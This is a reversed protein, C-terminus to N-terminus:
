REQTTALHDLLVVRASEIHARMVREAEAANRSLLAEYVQRHGEEAEKARHPLSLTQKRFRMLQAYLPELLLHVRDCHSAAYISRHFEDALRVATSHGATSLSRGRGRHKGDSLQDILAGIAALEQDSAREAAMAAAVGEVAGRLRYVDDVEEPSISAVYVGGRARVELLGDQQLRRVAERVPVRSVGMRQAIDAEYVRQGSAVEDDLLARRLESYVREQLSSQDTLPQLADLVM